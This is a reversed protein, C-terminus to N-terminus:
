QCKKDGKRKIKDATMTKPSVPPCDVGKLKTSVRDDKAFIINLVAVMLIWIGLLLGISIQEILQNNQQISEFLLWTMLLIVVPTAKKLHWSFIEMFSTM